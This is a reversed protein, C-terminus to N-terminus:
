THPVACLCAHCSPVHLEEFRVEGINPLASLKSTMSEGIGPPVVSVVPLTDARCARCATHRCSACPLCHPLVVSM